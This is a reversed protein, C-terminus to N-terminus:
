TNRRWKVGKIRIVVKIIVSAAKANLSNSFRDWENRRMKELHDKAYKESQDHNATQYSQYLYQESHTFYLLYRKSCDYGVQGMHCKSESVHVVPWRSEDGGGHFNSAIWRRSSKVWARPRQLIPRWILLYLLIIYHRTLFQLRGACPWRKDLHCDSILILIMNM